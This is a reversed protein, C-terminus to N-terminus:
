GRSTQQEVILVLLALLALGVMMGAGFYRLQGPIDGLLEIFAMGILLCIGALVVLSDGKLSGM